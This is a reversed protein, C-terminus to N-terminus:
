AQRRKLQWLLLGYAIAIWALLVAISLAEGDFFREGLVANYILRIGAGSPLFSLADVLPDPFDQGIFASPAIIPIMFIGAWTNLQNANKLLGALLLGIGLLALGTLTVSVIFIPWREIELRSIGLFIAMMAVIYVMGLLAKAAIVEGYPMALVLADITKKEFEEALVIPIALIAILTLMLIIAVVLSWTRIGLRDLILTSEIEAAQVIEVTAPPAQGAMARLAPDLSTLVYDGGLSTEPSRIVTLAPADGAAVDADFGEPLVLGISADDEGVLREAEAQSAVQQVEIEVNDPLVQDILGLLRTEGPAVLAIDAHVTSVSEDSFGFSYFVGIGLPVVLAILVRSDRVADKFDKIFLTLIRRVSDSM